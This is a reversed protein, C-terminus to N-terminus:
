ARHYPHGDLITKARYIQETLMVRALFHPWTMTGFALLLDARARMEDPPIRQEAQATRARAHEALQDLITM